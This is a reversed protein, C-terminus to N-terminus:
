FSSGPQTLFEQEAQTSERGLIQNRHPFRGFRNVVDQHKIAFKLNDEKGLARFLEVSLVQDAKNESHMLPMYLFAQQEKALDQAYKNSLAYKTLDLAQVDTAFAQATNRFMNRPFQDLIIILALLDNSRDRWSILGGTKALQYTDFFRQKIQRDFEDSKKFWLPKVQESFWFTLVDDSTTSKSM